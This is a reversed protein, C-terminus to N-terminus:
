ASSTTPSASRSSAASRRSPRPRAASSSAPWTSATSSACSSAPRCRWRARPLPRAGRRLAGPQLADDGRQDADGRRHARPLVRRRAPGAADGLHARLRRHGQGEGAGPQRPLVALPTHDLGDDRALASAQAVVTGTKLDTLALHIQLARKKATGDGDVRTMTGTLLYQAKSLNASQFPLIEFLDSKATLRESVRTELLTTAATQQGTAADLMPDLVVSRKNASRAQRPVGPLKQTQASSGTPPRRSPRSSRCRASARRRPPAACGACAAPSSVAVLRRLGRPAVCPLCVKM